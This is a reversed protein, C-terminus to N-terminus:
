RKELPEIHISNIYEFRGNAEMWATWEAIKEKIYEAKPTTAIKRLGELYNASGVHHTRLEAKYDRISQDYSKDWYRETGCVLKESIISDLAKQPQTTCRLVKGEGDVICHTYEHESTRVLKGNYYFKNKAM